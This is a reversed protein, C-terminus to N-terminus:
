FYLKIVSNLYESYSVRADIQKINQLYVIDDLLYHGGWEFNELKKLEDHYITMGDVHISEPNLQRLFELALSGALPNSDRFYKKKLINSWEYQPGFPNTHKYQERTGVFDVNGLPDRFYLYAAPLGVVTHGTFFRYFNEDIPYRPVPPNTNISVIAEYQSLDATYSGGGILLVKKNQM